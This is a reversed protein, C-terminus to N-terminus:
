FLSHRQARFRCRPIQYHVQQPSIHAGSGRLSAPCSDLSHDNAFGLSSSTSASKSLCEAPLIDLYRDELAAPGYEHCTVISKSLRRFAEPQDLIWAAALYSIKVTQGLDDPRLAAFKSTTAYRLAKTCDYKDVIVALDLFRQHTVNELDGQFHLLQCLLLLDAPADSVRIEPSSEAANRMAEGEAFGSRFLTRFVKSATSLLVSSAQIRLPLHSGDDAVLLVDGIDCVVKTLPEIEPYQTYPFDDTAFNLDAM